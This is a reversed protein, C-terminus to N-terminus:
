AFRAPERIPQTARPRKEWAALAAAFMEDVTISLICKKKQEICTDLCCNQCEVTHVVNSHIKGPPYWIGPYNRASFVTVCPVGGVAALFKPGSDPGLFLEAHSLAAATERPNLQGCLNLVPSRWVSGAQEGSQLDEKSGVLVLAHEPMRSNLRTLLGQWNETGWDTSQRKTGTGCAIFPRGGLSALVESGKRKEAETLRLDWNQVDDLNVTGLEAVCRALRSAEQEWLSTAPDFRHTGLDGLPLGIIRRIGCLRFFRADREIVAEGRPATLYVMYEPSFRRIQQWVRAIRGLNRTGVQYDIYGHVLGSGELIAAAAPAKAHIPVNTLLVREANPFTREILHFAPLAVVTDGLSGLRYVMVRKAETFNMLRNEQMNANNAAM